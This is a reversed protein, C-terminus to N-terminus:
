GHLIFHGKQAPIRRRTINHVTLLETKIQRNAFIRLFKYFLHM